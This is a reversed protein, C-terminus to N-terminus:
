SAEQIYSAIASQVERVSKEADIDIVQVGNDILWDIVPQTAKEYENFRLEIAAENDDPRNRALLREKVVAKSAVLHIAKNINFRGIKAQNLLWEAQGVSRPFGDLIVKDDDQITKLVDDLLKIIAQDDLLFGSMLKERQEGSLHMRIIDGM